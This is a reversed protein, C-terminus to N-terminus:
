GAVFRYAEVAVAGIALWASASVVLVGALMRFFAVFDEEDAGAPPNEDAWWYIQSAVHM